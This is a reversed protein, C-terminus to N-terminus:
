LIKPVKIRSVKCWKLHGIFIGLCIVALPFFIPIIFRRDAQFAIAQLALLFSAVLLTNGWARFRSKRALMLGSIISGLTFLGFMKELPNESKWGFAFLAKEFGYGLERVPRKKWIYISKSTLIKHHVLPSEGFSLDIVDGPNNRPDVKWRQASKSLLSGDDVTAMGTGIYLNVGSNTTLGIFGPQTNSVFFLWPAILLIVVVIMHRLVTLLSKNFLFFLFSAVVFILMLNNPKLYVAAAILFSLLSTKKRSVGSTDISSLVFILCVVIFSSLSEALLVPSFHWMPIVAYILSAFVAVKQSVYKNLVVKIMSVSIALCLVQLLKIGLFPASPVIFNFLLIIAPYGPMRYGDQFAESFGNTKWNLARSAYDAADVAGPAYSSVISNDLHKGILILQVILSTFFVIYTSYNFKRQLAEAASKM